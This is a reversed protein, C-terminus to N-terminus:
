PILDSVRMQEHWPYRGPRLLSKRELPSRTRLNLHCSAVGKLSTATKHGGLWERPIWHSSM